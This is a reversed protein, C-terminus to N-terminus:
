IVFGHTFVLNEPMNKALRENMTEVARIRAMAGRFSVRGALEELFELSEKHYVLNPDGGCVLIVIDRYWLLISRMVAQREERYRASVRADLAEDGKKIENEPVGKTRQEEHWINHEEDDIRQKIDALLAQLREAKAIGGLTGRIDRASLIEHLQERTADDLGDTSGESIKIQQCRSIITPLLKQPSDTLLIFLVQHPPEELTKLFANAASANMCDAGAFVCVRWGGEFSTEYVGRMTERMTEVSIIRSKKEPEVWHVDPHKGLCALEAKEPSYILSFIREVLRRGSGRPPAVVLYAQAMRGNEASHKIYTYAQDSNM